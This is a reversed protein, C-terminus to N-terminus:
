KQYEECPSQMYQFGKYRQKLIADYWPYQEKDELVNFLENLNIWFKEQGERFNDDKFYFSMAVPKYQFSGTKTDFYRNERIRIESCHLTTLLRIEPAPYVYHDMKTTSDYILIPDGYDDVLPIDSQYRMEFYHNIVYERMPDKMLDEMEQDYPIRYWNKTWAPGENAKYINMKGEDVLNKIVILLDLRMSASDGIMFLDKNTESPKLAIWRAGICTTDSLQAHTCFSTLLFLFPIFKMCIM